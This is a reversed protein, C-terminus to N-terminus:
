LLIESTLCVVQFPFFPFFLKRSMAKKLLIPSQALSTAADVISGTKAPIEVASSRTSDPQLRRKKVPASDESM